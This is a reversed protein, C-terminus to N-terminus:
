SLVPSEIKPDITKIDFKKQMLEWQDHYIQAESRRFRKPTLSSRLSDGVKMFVLTNRVKEGRNWSSVDNASDIEGNEKFEVYTETPQDGYYTSLSKLRGTASGETYYRERLGNFKKDKYYAKEALVTVNEKNQVFKFVLANSIAEKDHVTVKELHNEKTRHVWTGDPLGYKYSGKVTEVCFGGENFAYERYDGHLVGQHYNASKTQKGENNWDEWLGIKLGAGVYKYEGLLTVGDPQYHTLEGIPSNDIYISSTKLNGNPYYTRCEGNRKNDKFDIESELTGDAYYTRSPGELKGEKYEQTSEVKGGEGYLTSTGDLAGQKYHERKKVKCGSDFKIVEGELLNDVFNESIGGDKTLRFAKGNLKGNKYTESKAFNGDADFELREGELKDDAYHAWLKDTGNDHRQLYPGHRFMGKYSVFLKVRNHIDLEKYAWIEDPNKFAPKPPPTILDEM